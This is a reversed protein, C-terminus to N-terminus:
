EALLTDVDAKIRAPNVLGRYGGAVRGKKDVLLTTPIADVWSVLDPHGDPLLVPYTIPSSAVFQRVSDAEGEDLNIGVVSLGNSKEEKALKALDPIEMRCPACWTAWFNIVVVKGQHQELRWDKGDLDPLTFDPMKERKSAELLPRSGQALVAPLMGALIGFGLLILVIKKLGARVESTEM